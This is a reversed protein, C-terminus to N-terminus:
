LGGKVSQNEKSVEGGGSEGERLIRGIFGLDSEICIM